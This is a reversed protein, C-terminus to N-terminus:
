VEASILIPAPQCPYSSHYLISSGPLGGEEIQSCVNSYDLQARLRLCLLKPCLNLSKPLFSAVRNLKLAAFTGNQQMIMTQAQRQQM